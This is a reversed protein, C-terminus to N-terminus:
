AFWNYNMSHLILSLVAILTEQHTTLTKQMHRSIWFKQKGSLVSIWPQMQAFNASNQSNQPSETQTRYSLFTIYPTPRRQAAKFSGPPGSTDIIGRQWCAMLPANVTPMRTTISSYSSIIDESIIDVYFSNPGLDLRAGLVSIFSCHKSRYLYSNNPIRYKM